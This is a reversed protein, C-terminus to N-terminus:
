HQVLVWRAVVIQVTKAYGGAGATLVALGETESPRCWDDDQEEGIVQKLRESQHVCVYWEGEQVILEEIKKEM